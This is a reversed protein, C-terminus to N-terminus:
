AQDSDPEATSGCDFFARRQHYYGIVFLGQDELGLHKPFGKLEITIDEIMRDSISGFKSKSIHHQSLRLLQPFAVCPTAMASGFFRDRITSNTKGLADRQAKELVAFLRGLRYGTNANDQELAMKIERNQNTTRYQRNLFAKVMATRLYDMSPLAKRDARFRLIILALLMRPYPTGNLIARALAGILLPPIKESKGAPAVAILLRAMGPFEPDLEQNRVLSLDKFHQGLKVAIADVTSMHWFRVSIRGANPALGLIYFTMNLLDIAPYYKGDRTARLFNQLELSEGSRNGLDFVLGMFGEVPTDREAWFVITTDNIRIKQRSNPRLLHNLATSYEFAAQEGIPANIGQKKAFFQFSEPQFCVISAGTSQTGYVGKIKPHLRAISETRGSILCVSKTGPKRQHYHSLWATKVAAHDHIYKLEGDLQFVLNAGEAMENWYPLSPADIPNWSDLFQLVAKMGRDSIHDGIEHHMQRFFHFTKLARSQNRKHDGGLVYSTNDCMFNPLINHTRQQPEPVMIMVPSLFGAQKSRLDDAELLKGYADLRLVFHVKQMAFGRIPINTESSNLLRQYYGCLKHLIM